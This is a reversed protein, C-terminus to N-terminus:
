FWLEFRKEKAIKIKKFYFIKFSPKINKLYALEVIYILYMPLIFTSDQLGKVLHPTKVTHYAQSNPAFYPLTILRGNTPANLPLTITRSPGPQITGRDRETNTEKRCHIQENTALFLRKLTLVLIM